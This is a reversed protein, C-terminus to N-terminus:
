GLLEGNEHYCEYENKRVGKEYFSRIGLRGNEYYVLCEGDNRDNKYFCKIWLKGNKHYELYEGERQGNVYSYKERLKGNDYYELYEGERKGDVYFLRKILLGDDNYELYEGNYNKINLNYFFATEETLFFHIGTTCVEDLDDDFRYEDATEDVIYQFFVPCDSNIKLLQEDSMKRTISVVFAQNCRFKAHNSNVVGRRRLNTKTGELLRLKVICDQASKYVIFPTVVIGNEDVCNIINSNSRSM